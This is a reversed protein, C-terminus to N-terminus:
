EENLSEAIQELKTYAEDLKDLKTNMERLIDVMQTISESMTNVASLLEGGGGSQGDSSNGTTGGSQMAGIGNGPEPLDSTIEADPIAAGRVDGPQPNLRGRRRQNNRNGDEGSSMLGGLSVEGLMELQENSTPANVTSDQSEQGYDTQLPSPKVQDLPVMRADDQSGRRPSESPKPRFMAVKGQGPPPLPTMMDVPKVAKNVPSVGFGPMDQNSRTSGAGNPDGITELPNDVKVEPLPLDVSQSVPAKAGVAVDPEPLPPLEKAEMQGDEEDPMVIDDPLEPLDDREDTM